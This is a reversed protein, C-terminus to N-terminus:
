AHSSSPAQEQLTCHPLSITFTCGVGPLNAVSLMGGDATVSKRAISLGLGLGTKDDGRQTFPMFIKEVDGPPLGGCNDKVDILIRDSMAYVNLTVETHPHTFKFANQLM